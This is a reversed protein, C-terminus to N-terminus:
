LPQLKEVDKNVNVIKPKNTLMLCIAWIRKLSQLRICMQSQILLGSGGSIAQM